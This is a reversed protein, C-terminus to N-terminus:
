FQLFTSPVKYSFLGVYMEDSTALTNILAFFIEFLIQLSIHFVRM